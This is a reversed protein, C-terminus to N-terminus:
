KIGQCIGQLIRVVMLPFQGGAYAVAPTALTLVATGFIGICALRGAGVVPALIGGLIQTTIYGYFFSSLIM